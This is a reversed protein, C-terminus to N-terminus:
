CVNNSSSRILSYYHIYIDNNSTTQSNRMLNLSIEKASIRYLKDLRAPTAIFYCTHISLISLDGRIVRTVRIALQINTHTHTHTNIDANGSALVYKQGNYFTYVIYHQGTQQM